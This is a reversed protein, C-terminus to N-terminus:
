IYINDSCVSGLKQVYLELFPSSFDWFFCIFSDSINHKRIWCHWLSTRLRQHFKPHFRMGVSTMMLYNTTLLIATLNKKNKEGLACKRKVATSPFCLHCLKCTTYIELKLLNIELANIFDQYWWLNCSQLVTSALVFLYYMLLHFILDFDSINLLLITSDQLTSGCHSRIISFQFTNRSKRKLFKLCLSFRKRERKKKEDKKKKISHSFCFNYYFHWIGLDNIFIWISFNVAHICM